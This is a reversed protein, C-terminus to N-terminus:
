VSEERHGGQAARSLSHAFPQFDPDDCSTRDCALELPLVVHLRLASPPEGPQPAPWGAPARGGDEERGGIAGVHEVGRQRITSKHNEHSTKAGATLISLLREITFAM